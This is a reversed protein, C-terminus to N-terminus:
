AVGNQHAEQLKYMLETKDRAKMKITLVEGECLRTTQTNPAPSGDDNTECLYLKDGDIIVELCPPSRSLTSEM